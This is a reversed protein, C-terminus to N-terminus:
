ISVQRAVLIILHRMSSNVGLVDRFALAAFPEQRTVNSHGPRALVKLGPLLISLGQWHVALWVARLPGQGTNQEAAFLMSGYLPWRWM